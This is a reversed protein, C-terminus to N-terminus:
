FREDGSFLLADRHPNPVEKKHELMTYRSISSPWRVVSLGAHKVRRFLDDDEGGWGFFHNSFGRIRVFHEARMSVVGGFFEPYPLVYRFASVASGAHRPHQECRYLNRLDEPLYDVDHFFICCYSDRKTAEVFGINLLKARNFAGEATQEVVFITYQVSQKQLFPHMHQLFLSLHKQRDRYPVLIAVFHASKCWSPAWRGGPQLRASLEGLLTKNVEANVPFSQPMSASLSPCTPRDAPIWFDQRETRPTWPCESANADIDRESMQLFDGSPRTSQGPSFLLYCVVLFTIFVVVLHSEYLPRATAVLRQRFSKDFSGGPVRCTRM